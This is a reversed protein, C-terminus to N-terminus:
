WAAMPGPIAADLRAAVLMGPPIAVAAVVLDGLAQGGGAWLWVPRSPNPSSPSLGHRDPQGGVPPVSRGCSRPAPCLTFAIVTGGFVVAARIAIALLPSVADRRAYSASTAVIAITEGIVGAGLSAIM